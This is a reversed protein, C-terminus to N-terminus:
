NKVLIIDHKNKKSTSFDIDFIKTMTVILLICLVIRAITKM